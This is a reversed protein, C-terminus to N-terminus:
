SVVSVDADNPSSTLTSTILFVTPCSFVGKEQGLAALSQVENGYVEGDTLLFWLDSSHIRGLSHENKLIESPQTGGMDSRWNFNRWDKKPNDCFTGWKTIWNEKEISRQHIEEVFDQESRLPAGGTSGSADVAFFKRAKSFPIYEVKHETPKQIIKWSAM